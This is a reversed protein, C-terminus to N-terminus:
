KKSSNGSKIKELNKTAIKKVKSSITDAMKIALEGAKIAQKKNGLKHQISAYTSVTGYSLPKKHYAITILKAAQELIKQNTTKRSTARAIFAITEPDNDLKDLYSNTVKIFEDANNANSFYGAHLIAIDRIPANLLKLTDLSKFFLTENKERTYTYINSQIVKSYLKDVPEKGYISTLQKKEQKFKQLIIPEDFLFNQIIKWGNDTLYFDDSAKKTINVLVKRYTYNRNQKLAIAYTILENFSITNNEYKKKLVGSSKTPDLAKKGEDIFEKASMRSNSRHIVNGDYDIFLYTPFSKVAYTKALEIGEGKEMDLKLNIFKSNYFDYVDKKVFVNKDMWKCPACWSTYCDIFILKNEKKAKKLLSKFTANQFDIEKKEEQKCSVGLFTLCLLILIHKKM